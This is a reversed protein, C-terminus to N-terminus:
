TGYINSWLFFLFLQAPNHSFTKKSFTFDSCFRFFIIIHIILKHSFWDCFWFGEGNISFTPNLMFIVLPHYHSACAPSCATVVCSSHAGHLSLHFLTMIPKFHKVLTPIKKLAWQIHQVNLSKLRYSCKMLMIMSCVKVSYGSLPFLPWCLRESFCQFPSLRIMQSYEQFICQPIQSM